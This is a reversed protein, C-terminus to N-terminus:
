ARGWSKEAALGSRDECAVKRLERKGIRLRVEDDRSERSSLARRYKGFM